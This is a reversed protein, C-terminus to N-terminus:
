HTVLRSRVAESDVAATEILLNPRQLRRGLVSQLERFAPGLPADKDLLAPSCTIYM